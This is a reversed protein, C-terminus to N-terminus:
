LKEVEEDRIFELIDSINCYLVTCIKNLTAIDLRKINENYMDGITNPRVGILQALERGSMRKKGLQESLKIKIISCRMAFFSILYRFDTYWVKRYIEVPNSSKNHM